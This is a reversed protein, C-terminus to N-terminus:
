SEIEISKSSIYFLAKENENLHDSVKKLLNLAAKYSPGIIGISKDNKYLKYIVEGLMTSKGTGPPGQITLFSNNLNISLDFIKEADIDKNDTKVLEKQNENKLLKEVLKPLKSTEIYDSVNCYTGISIQKFKEITIYHTCTAM